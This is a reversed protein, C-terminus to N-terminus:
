AAVMARLQPNKPDPEWVPVKPGYFATWVTRVKGFIEIARALEAETPPRNARKMNCSGCALVINFAKGYGQSALKVHDRTWHLPKNNKKGIGKGAFESDCHFCRGEQAVFVMLAIVDSSM